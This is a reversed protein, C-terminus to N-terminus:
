RSDISEQIKYDNAIISFWLFLTCLIMNNYWTFLDCWRPRTVRMKLGAVVM